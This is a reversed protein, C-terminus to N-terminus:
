GERVPSITPPRRLNTSCSGQTTGACAQLALSPFRPGMAQAEPKHGGCQVLWIIGYQDELEKAEAELARRHPDRHPLRAAQTQLRVFTGRPDGQEELWDALVLRPTDDEPREKAEALLALVALRSPSGSHHSM